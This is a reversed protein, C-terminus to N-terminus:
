KKAKGESRKNVRREMEKKMMGKEENIRGREFFPNRENEKEKREKWTKQEMRSM